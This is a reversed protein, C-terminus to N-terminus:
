AARATDDQTDLARVDSGSSVVVTLPVAFRSARQAKADEDIASVPVKHHSAFLALLPAWDDDDLRSGRKQPEFGRVLDDALAFEAAERVMDLADSPSHGQSMIGYPLFHSVWYDPLDESREIYVWGTFARPEAM